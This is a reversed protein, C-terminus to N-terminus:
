SFRLLSPSPLSSGGVHKTATGQGERQEQPQASLERVCYLLIFIGPVVNINSECWGKMQLTHLIKGMSLSSLSVIFINFSNRGDRKSLNVSLDLTTQM